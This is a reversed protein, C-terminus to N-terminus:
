VFDSPDDDFLTCVIFAPSSTSFPFARSSNTPIYISVAGISFPILETLNIQETTDSEKHGWSGCCALGGQGDGVGPTWEFEHGTDRHHWGIMEDKTM